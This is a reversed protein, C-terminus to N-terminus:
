GGEGSARRDQRRLRARERRQRLYAVVEPHPDPRRSYGPCQEPEDQDLMPIRKMLFASLSIPHQWLGRACNVRRLTVTQVEGSGTEPSPGSADRGTEAGPGNASSGAAIGLNGRGCGTEKDLNGAGRARADHVGRLVARTAGPQGIARPAPVTVEDEVLEACTHCPAGPLYLAASVHAAESMKRAYSVTAGGTWCTELPCGLGLCGAYVPGDLCPFTRARASDDHPPTVARPQAATAGGPNKAARRERVAIARGVRRRAGDEVHFGFASEVGLVRRIEAEEDPEHEVGTGGDAEDPEHTAGRGGDDERPSLAAREGGTAKGAPHM